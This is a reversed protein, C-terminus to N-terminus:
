SGDRRGMDEPDKAIRKAVWDDAPGKCAVKHNIPMGTSEDKGIILTRTGDSATLQDDLSEIPLGMKDEQTHADKPHDDEKGKAKVCVPCWSRYPVHTVCHEEIEAETPDGPHRAVRVPAKDPPAATVGAGDGGSSRAEPDHIMVEDGNDNGEGEIAEEIAQLQRKYPESPRIGNSESM